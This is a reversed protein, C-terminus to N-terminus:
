SIAIIKFYEEQIFNKFQVKLVAYFTNNQEYMEDAMYECSISKFNSSYEKIIAQVDSIYTELDDGDLFTYRTRPCRSRIVKIIEQVAMINHLYSLQSHEDQNVYMTEMVPVGDYISLYNVNINVLEQKQDEEPVNVPLFNISNEIINDFTLNNAIGAFPRNVGKAIHDTMKDILMYPMTVTIEKKSFPDIIKFYNHYLSVYNSFNIEETKEKILALTNATTGLDAIFVLDGRFDVLDIIANKVDKSWGCDFICDLKYADLDYILSDFLPSTRDKGLAGLLMKEMETPNTVPSAGMAGFSGNSLPVGISSSLDLVTTIDEGPGVGDFQIKENENAYNVTCIGNIRKGGRTYGYLFDENILDIPYIKNGDEDVATESLVEVLKYIGDEYAKVRVQNSNSKIKPNISQGIGNVIIEPNMSILISEIVANDEIVEFSYKMYNANNKNRSNSYEPNISFFSLSEGRGMPTVTFLPIDISEGPQIDSAKTTPVSIGDCADEFTKCGEISEAHLYVYSCPIKSEVNPIPSINNKIVRAWITTNALTADDSVLRKGLVYAGSRLAQAVTLQAQGHKLFSMGGKTDTFGEFSTLLEWNETGKNSTYPQLYLAVNNGATNTEISQIQTQNVIDFKSKPYGKM